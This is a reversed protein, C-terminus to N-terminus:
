SIGYTEMSVIIKQNTEHHRGHRRKWARNHATENQPKEAAM